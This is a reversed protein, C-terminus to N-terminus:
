PITMCAHGSGNCNTTYGFGTQGPMALTNNAAANIGTFTGDSAGGFFQIGPSNDNNIASADGGSGPGGRNNKNSSFQAGIWESSNISQFSAGYSLNQEMDPNIHTNNACGVDWGLLGNFLTHVSTFTNGANQAFSSCDIAGLWTTSTDELIGTGTTGSNMNNNNCQIRQFLSNAIIFGPMANFHCGITQAGSEGINEFTCYLCGVVTLGRNAFGNANINLDRLVFNPVNTSTQQEVYVFVAIGAISAPATLKAGNGNIVRPVSGGPRGSLCTPNSCVAFYQVVCNAGPPFSLVKLNAAVLANRFAVTDDTTGDCVAGYTLPSIGDTANQVFATSACANTSDGPARTPCTQNQAAAPALGLLLFTLLALARIM